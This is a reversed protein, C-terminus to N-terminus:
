WILKSNNLSDEGDYRYAVLKGKKAVSYDLCCINSSQIKPEGDLWYHGFFIIKDNQNYFDISSLVDLEIPIEPLHNNSPASISKYTADVPTEWWKVRFATRENGDKDKFPKHGPTPSELGKLLIEVAEYEKSKKDVSKELFGYSIGLKNFDEDNNISKWYAIKESHWCAHVVRFSENEYYLPLKKFWDIHQELEEQHNYSELTEYHQKINKLDHKRLYGENSENSSTNLTHFCIANYEHNGMLAIASENEVMRRVIRCVDSSQPGRDIYDGVFIAMRGPYHYHGKPSLTYGMKNLLSTLEDVHGHVDGIIDYNM